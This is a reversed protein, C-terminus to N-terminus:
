GVFCGLQVSPRLTRSTGDVSMAIGWVIIGADRSAPEGAGSRNGMGCADLQAPSEIEVQAMHDIAASSGRKGLDQGLRTGMYM